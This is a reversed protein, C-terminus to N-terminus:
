APFRPFTKRIKVKEDFANEGVAKVSPPLTVNTLRNSSFAAFGITELSYPLSIDTLRNCTFAGNGICVLSAPLNVSCIQNNVFAGDCIIKVSDPVAISTLRNNIFAEEGIIKVSDPIAVSTLNNNSFARTGIATVPLGNIKKPIVPDKTNGRWKLIEVASDDLIALEYENALILTISFVSKRSGRSTYSDYLSFYLFSGPEIIVNDPLSVVVLPNNAFADKGITKVSDPIVIDALRNFSFAVDEIEVLSVPLLVSTLHNNYFAGTDIKTVSDPISVSTLIKSEFAERGITDVPLGNIKEPIVVSKSSGKYGTITIKGNKATYEFDSANQCYGSFCLCIFLGLFLISKKM